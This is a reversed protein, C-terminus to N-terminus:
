RVKIKDIESQKIQLVTMNSEFKVVGDISDDGFVDENDELPENIISQLQLPIFFCLM